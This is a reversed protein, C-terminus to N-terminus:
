IFYFISLDYAHFFISEDLKLHIVGSVVASFFVSVVATVNYGTFAMTRTLKCISRDYIIIAFITYM